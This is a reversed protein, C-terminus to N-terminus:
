FLNYFYDYQLQERSAWNDPFNSEGKVYRFSNTETDERMIVWAGNKNIFGYYSVVGDDMEAVHYGELPRRETEPLQTTPTTTSRPLLMDVRRNFLSFLFFSVGAAGILKLFTRKDVDAIEVKDREPLRVGAPERLPRAPLPQVPIQVATTPSVLKARPFISLGFYALAPYLLIAVGLQAYTRATVFTLIVLFSVVVFSSYIAIKRM